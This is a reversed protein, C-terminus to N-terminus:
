RLQAAAACSQPCTDSWYGGVVMRLNNVKNAVGVYGNFDLLQASSPSKTSWYAPRPSGDADNSTGVIDGLDNISAPFSSNDPIGPPTGLVTM